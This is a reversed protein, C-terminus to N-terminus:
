HGATPLVAACLESSPCCGRSEDVDNVEQELKQAYEKVRQAEAKGEEIERARQAQKERLQADVVAKVQEAQAKRREQQERLAADTQMGKIREQELIEADTPPRHRDVPPKYEVRLQM